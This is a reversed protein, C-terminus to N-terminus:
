RRTGTGPSNDVDAGDRQWRDCRDGKAGGEGTTCGVRAAGHHETKACRLSWGLRDVLSMLPLSLLGQIDVLDDTIKEGNLLLTIPKLAYKENFQIWDHDEPIAPM